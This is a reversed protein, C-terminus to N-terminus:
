HTAHCGVFLAHDIYRTGFSKAADYASHNLCTMMLAIHISVNMPTQVHQQCFISRLVCCCQSVSKCIVMVKCYFSPPQADPCVIREEMNYNQLHKFREPNSILTIVLLQGCEIVLESLPQMAPASSQETLLTDTLRALCAAMQHVYAQLVPICKLPIQNPQCSTYANSDPM